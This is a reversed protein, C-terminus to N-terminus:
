ARVGKITIIMGAKLGVSAERITVQTLSPVDSVLLTDYLSPTTETMTITTSGHPNLGASNISGHKVRWYEGDAYIEVACLNIRANNGVVAVCYIYTPNSETGSNILGNMQSDTKEPNTILLKIKKYGNNFKVPISSVTEQLTITEIIEWEDEVPIESKLAYDGKPQKGDLQEVIEESLLNTTETLKNIQGDIINKDENTLFTIAM